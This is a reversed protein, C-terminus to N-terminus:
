NLSVGTIYIFDPKEGADELERILLNTHAYAFNLGPCTGWHGLLRLKIDEKNLPRELLANSRM